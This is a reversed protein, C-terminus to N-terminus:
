DIVINLLINLVSSELVIETFKRTNLKQLIQSFITINLSAGKIIRKSM